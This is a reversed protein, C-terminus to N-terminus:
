PCISLRITLKFSVASSLIKEARASLVRRRTSASRSCPVADTLSSARGCAIDSGAKRFCRRTSSSAPRIALALSPRTTLQVRDASGM